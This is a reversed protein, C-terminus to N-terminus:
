QRRETLMNWGEATKTLGIVACIDLLVRASRHSKPQVAYSKHSQVVDGSREGRNKGENSEQVKVVVQQRVTGGPVCQLFSGTLSTNFSVNPVQAM